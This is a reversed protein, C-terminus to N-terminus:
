QLDQNQPETEDPRSWDKKVEEITKEMLEARKGPNRIFSMAYQYQDDYTQILSPMLLLYLLLGFIAVVIMSRGLSAFMGGWRARWRRAAGTTARGFRLHYWCTLLVLSFAISTYPGACYIWQMLALYFTGLKSVSANMFFAANGWPDPPLTMISYLIGKNNFLNLNFRYLIGIFIAAVLSLVIFSKIVYPIRKRYIARWFFLNIVFGGYLLMVIAAVALLPIGQGAPGPQIPQYAITMGIILFTLVYGGLWAVLNRFWGLIAPPQESKWLIFRGVIWAGIGIISLLFVTMQAINILLSILIVFGYDWPKNLAIIRKNAEALIEDRLSAQGYDVIIEALEREPFLGPNDVALNQIRGVTGNHLFSMRLADDRSQARYQEFMHLQQDTLMLLSFADGDQEAEVAQSGIKRWLELLVYIIRNQINRNNIVGPLDLSSVTSRQLFSNLISARDDIILFHRKKQGSQFYQFAQNYKRPDTIKVNITTSSYDYEVSENWLQWAALYDYFANDPDHKICQDLITFWDPDRVQIKASYSNCSILLLARLRWWNVNEPQLETTRAAMKLCQEKCKDEFLGIASGVESSDIQWSAGAPGSQKSIMSYRYVFGMGPSDLLIAAGMALEANEPDADTIRKVEKLWFDAQDTPEQSSIPIQEGKVLGVTADLWQRKLLLWGTETHSAVWLLRIFLIVALIILGAILFHAKRM